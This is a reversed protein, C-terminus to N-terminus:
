HIFDKLRLLGKHSFPAEFYVWPLSSSHPVMIPTEWLLNITDRGTVGLFAWWSLLSLPSKPLIQNRAQPHSPHLSAYPLSM